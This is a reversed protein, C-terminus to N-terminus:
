KNLFDAIERFNRNFIERRSDGDSEAFTEESDRLMLVRDWNRQSGRIEESIKIPVQFSFGEIEGSPLGLAASIEFYGTRKEGELLELLREAPMNKDFYSMYPGPFGPIADLFISHDERIVPNELDEIVEEVTHRAVKMSTSAQIEPLSKDLQKLEIKSNEFATRAAEVKDSNGTLIYIEEFEKEEVM